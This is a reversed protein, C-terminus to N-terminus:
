ERQYCALIPVFPGLSFEDPGVAAWGTGLWSEPPLSPDSESYGSIGPLPFRGIAHRALLGGRVVYGQRELFAKVLPYLAAETSANSSSLRNTEPVAANM